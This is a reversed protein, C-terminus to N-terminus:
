VVDKEPIKFKLKPVEILFSKCKWDHEIGAKYERQKAKHEESQCQKGMHYIFTAFCGMVGECYPCPIQHLLSM